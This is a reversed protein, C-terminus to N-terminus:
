VQMHFFLVNLSSFEFKLRFVTQKYLQHRMQVSAFFPRYNLRISLHNLTLKGTSLAATPKMLKLKKKAMLIVTILIAM